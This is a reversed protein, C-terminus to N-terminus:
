IRFCITTANKQNKAFQRALEVFQELDAVPVGAGGTVIKDYTGQLKSFLSLGSPSRAYESERVVSLEDLIKKAINKPLILQNYNKNRIYFEHNGPTYFVKEWWESCYDLFKYFLPNNKNCIDGALFLYKAKVPLIPVKNWLEIHIDSYVQILLKRASM